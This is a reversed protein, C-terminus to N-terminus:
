FFWIWPSDENYSIEDSLDCRASVSSSAVPSFALSEKAEIFDPEGYLPIPEISSLSESTTIVDEDNKLQYPPILTGPATIVNNTIVAGVREGLLAGDISVLCQQQDGAWSSGSIALTYVTGQRIVDIASWPQYGNILWSTLPLTFRATRWQAQQIGGHLKGYYQCFDNPPSSGASRDPLYPIQMNSRRAVWNSANSEFFAVSSAGMSESRFQAPIREPEPPTSQGANSAVLNRGLSIPQQAQQIARSYEAASKQSDILAAVGTRGSPARGQAVYTESYALWQGPNQEEWTEVTMESFTLGALDLSRALKWNPDGFDGLLAALTTKILVEKRVLFGSSNYKYTETRFEANARGYRSTSSFSAPDNKHAWDLYPGIALGRERSIIEAISLLYGTDNKDFKRTKTSIEASPV